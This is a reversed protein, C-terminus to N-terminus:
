KPPIKTSHYTWIRFFPTVMADFTSNIQLHHRRDKCTNSNLLFQKICRSSYKICAQNSKTLFSWFYVEKAHLLQVVLLAFFKLHQQAWVIAQLWRRRWQKSSPLIYFNLNPQSKVNNLCNEVCSSRSMKVIIHM